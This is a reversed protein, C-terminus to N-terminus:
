EFKRELRSTRISGSCVLSSVGGFGDPRKLASCLNGEVSRHRVFRAFLEVPAQKLAVILTTRFASGM